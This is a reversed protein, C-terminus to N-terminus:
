QLSTSSLIDMINHQSFSINECKMVDWNLFVILFKNEVFIMLNRWELSILDESIHIEDERWQMLQTARM